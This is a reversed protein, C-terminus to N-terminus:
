LDTRLLVCNRLTFHGQCAASIAMQGIDLHDGIKNDLSAAPMGVFFLFVSRSVTLSLALWSAPRLLLV